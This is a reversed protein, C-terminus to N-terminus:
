IDTTKGWIFDMAESYEMGHKAAYFVKADVVNRVYLPSKGALRLLYNIQEADLKLILSIQILCNRTPKRTGNLMQYGYNRDVNLMRIISAKKIKREKIYTNLVDPLKPPANSEIIERDFAAPDNLKNELESTLM